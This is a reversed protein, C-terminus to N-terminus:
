RRPFLGDWAGNTTTLIPLSNNPAQHALVVLLGCDSYGKPNDADAKKCYELITDKETQDFYACASSFFNSSPTLLQGCVLEMDTKEKIQKEADRTAAVIMLYAKPGSALLESFVDNWSSCAQNGSGSFDDILIITDDPGLKKLPIESRQIFLEDFFRTNMGNARRFAHTMTDGSEGSSRSFAVFYWRGTRNKKFRHWGPMGQLLTRFISDIHGQDLFLVSDLVRAATDRDGADFQNLWFQILDNNVPVRYNRFTALWAEYRKANLPTGTKKPRKM